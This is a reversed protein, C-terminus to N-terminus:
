QGDTRVFNVTRLANAREVHPAAIRANLKGCNNVAAAMLAAHTGARQVHGADNTQALSALHRLLIHRLLTCSKKAQAFPEPFPKFRLEVLDEDVARHFM